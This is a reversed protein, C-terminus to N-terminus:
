PKLDHPEPVSLIDRRAARAAADAIAPEGPCMEQATRLTEEAEQYRRERYQSTGLAHWIHCDNPDVELAHLLVETADEDRGETLFLIGLFHLPYGLKPQKKSLLVLAQKAEAYRRSRFFNWALNFQAESYSPVLELARRFQGEADGYRHDMFALIGLDNHVRASKDDGRVARELAPKAAEAEGLLLLVAGYNSWVKPLQEPELRVAEACDAKAGQLEGESLKRACDSELRLATSSPPPLRRACGALLFLVLAARWFSRSM